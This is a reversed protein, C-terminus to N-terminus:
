KTKKNGNQHEIYLNLKNIQKKYPLLIFLISILKLQPQFLGRM